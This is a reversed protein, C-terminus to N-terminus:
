EEDLKARDPGEVFEFKARIFCCEMVVAKGWRVALDSRMLHGGAVDRLDLGGYRSSKSYPRNDVPM